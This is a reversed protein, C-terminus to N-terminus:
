NIIPNSIEYMKGSVEIESTKQMQQTQFTNTNTMKFSKRFIKPWTM